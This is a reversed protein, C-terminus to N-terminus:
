TPGDFSEVSGVTNPREQIVASVFVNTDVITVHEPSLSSSGDM